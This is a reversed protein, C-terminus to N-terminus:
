KRSASAGSPVKRRIFSGIRRICLYGVIELAAELFETFGDDLVKALEEARERAEGHPLLSLILRFLLTEPM